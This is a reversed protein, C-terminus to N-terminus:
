QARSNLHFGTASDGPLSSISQPYFTSSKRVSPHVPLGTITLFIYFVANSTAPIYSVDFPDGYIMSDCDPNSVVKFVMKNWGRGNAPVDEM